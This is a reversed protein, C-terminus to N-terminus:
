THFTYLHTLTNSSVRDSGISWYDLLDEAEVPGFSLSGTNSYIYCGPYVPQTFQANFTYMHSLKNSSVNYFSLTGAPWDLYVGVRKLGTPPFSPYELNHNYRTFLDTKKVCFGWSQDNSGFYSKEGWKRPIQKYAVGIGKDEDYGDSLEVEWYCRGTLGQKCLVQSCYDFRAQDGPYEQWAGRTVKKNDDSLILYNSATKPNLSLDCAYWMLATKDTITEVPPVAPRSFNDTMLIGENYHYITAGKYKENATATALFRVTSSNKLPKALDHFANAKERMKTLVENSFYWHDKGICRLEPSHLYNKMADCCPDASELSTFVFCLADEVGRALVEEDLESQNPVIKTNTGKMMDVCSGVVNIEREKHNMWKSLKDHSFPSKDRDELLKTLSSEDEKGERISVVTKAMTQQLASTYNNCQRQFSRLNKRIQPFNESVSEALSENCRMEMQRLDELTDEAKNLIERSIEGKSEAANSDLNKLPMLRVELPAGNEKKEGLLKPLEVYTKVADVFTAPNSELFLDGFFKCSFKNTMAKEEETLKIDIKGEVDIKPIKKIAAEMSGQIDQVSSADLKESDFVFFANAGYTIGTVVHTASTKQVVDKQQENLNALQTMSLQKFNTEAKYQLTVRSQNKFKKQDNLYKASGGVEILGGLFSAKLSAEVNLLSSKSEISDSATIHFAQSRKPEDVTNKQLTNIDWLTFGPILADKRADYLMGLTFPRGLAPMQLQSAM